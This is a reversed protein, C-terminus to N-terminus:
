PADVVESGPFAKRLNEIPNEPPIVDGIQDKPIRGTDDDAAGVGVAGAGVHEPGRPAASPPASSQGPAARRADVECHVAIPHGVRRALVEAVAPVHEAVRAATADNPAVVVLSGDDCGLALYEGSPHFAMANVILPRTGALREQLM